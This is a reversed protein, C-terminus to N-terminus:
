NTGGAKELLSDVTPSVSTLGAGVLSMLETLQGSARELDDNVIVFDFGRMRQLEAVSNALRLALSEASETGRGELRRRLEALEPPVIAVLPWQPRLSRISLCGVTDVEFVLNRGAQAAREIESVPSGYYNGYVQAFELFGGAVVQSEFQERSHYHYNVGDVEGDRKARTTASVSLMWEPLKALARAILTSKGVGSPGAVVICSPTFSM